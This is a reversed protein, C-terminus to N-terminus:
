TVTLKPKSAQGTIVIWIENMEANDVSRSMGVVVYREIEFLFVSQKRAITNQAFSRGYTGM